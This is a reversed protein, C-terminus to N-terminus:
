SGVGPTEHGRQGGGAPVQTLDKLPESELEASAAGRLLEELTDMLERM